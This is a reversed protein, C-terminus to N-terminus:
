KTLRVSSKTSSTPCRPPPLRLAYLREQWVMLDQGDIANGARELREQISDALDKRDKAAQRIGVVHNVIDLFAPLIPLFVGAIFQLLSLEALASVVILGVLWLGLRRRRVTPVDPDVITAYRQLGIRIARWLLPRTTLFSTNPCKMLAIPYLPVGALFLVYRVRVSSM